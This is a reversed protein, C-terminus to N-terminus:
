VTQGNNAAPFVSVLGDSFDALRVASFKDAIKASGAITALFMFAAKLSHLSDHKFASPPARIIRVHRARQLQHVVERSVYVSRVCGSGTVRHSQAARQICYMFSRRAIVAM